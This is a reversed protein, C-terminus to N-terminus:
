PPTSIADRQITNKGVVRPGQHDEPILVKAGPQNHM